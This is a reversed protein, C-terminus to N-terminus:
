VLDQNRENNKSPFSQDTQLMSRTQPDYVVLLWFDKAPVNAPITLKYNQAGDLYRGESDEAALAYQSGVGVMELVMAPTDVTAIYFFLTRADKNRGGNGGDKLWQYIGGDFATFWASDIGYLYMTDSRPRFALSRETANAIEFADKFIGKCVSM